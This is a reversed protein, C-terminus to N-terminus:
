VVWLNLAVGVLIGAGIMLWYKWSFLVKRTYVVTLVIAGVAIMAVYIYLFTDGLLAISLATYLPIM